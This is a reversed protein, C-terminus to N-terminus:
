KQVRVKLQGHWELFIAREKLLYFDMTLLAPYREIQSVSFDCEKKLFFLRKDLDSVPEDPNADNPVYVSSM